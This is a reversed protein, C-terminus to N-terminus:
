PKVTSFGLIEWTQMGGRFWKIKEAPYGYKLLTAMSAPSQGCWMGNCFLALTKADSYDFVESVTGSVLAEDVTFDDADGVLKVGFQDIMVEMIIETTAGKSTSLKTFPVNVAGPITGREVWDPTRSDVVLINEGSQMRVIHDIIELEGLTEVGPAFTMPQICFVPCPRSTKAFADIITNSNDQNRIIQVTQGNHSVDVSMLKSTIGVPGGAAVACFSTVGLLLGASLLSFAKTIRKM